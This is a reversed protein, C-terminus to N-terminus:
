IRNTSCITHKSAEKDGTLVNSYGGGNGGGGRWWIWWSRRQEMIDVGGGGKRSQGLVQPHYSQPTM